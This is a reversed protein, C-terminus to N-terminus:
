AMADTQRVSDELWWFNLHFSENRDIYCITTIRFWHPVSLTRPICNSKWSQQSDERFHSSSLNPEVSGGNFWRDQPKGAGCPKVGRGGRWGEYMSRQPRSMQCCAPNVSQLIFRGKSLTKTAAVAERYQTLSCFFISNDKSLLQYFFFIFFVNLKWTSPAIQRSFAEPHTSIVNAISNPQWSADLSLQKGHCSGTPQPFLLAICPILVPIWKRWLGTMITGCAHLYKNGTAILALSQNVGVSQLPWPHLPLLSPFHPHPPHPHLAKLIVTITVWLPFLSVPHHPFHCLRHPCVCM